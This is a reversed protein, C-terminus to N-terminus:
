IAVEGNKMPIRRGPDYNLHITRDAGNYRYTVQYGAPEEHSDYVTECQRETTQYTNNKQIEQQAQNGAYGGIVAGGVTAADNGKGKGIENGLVGGIVAGTITGVIRNEDKVEKTRTVVVDRCEERPTDVSKTVATVNIVEAYAGSTYESDTGSNNSGVKDCGAILGIATIGM